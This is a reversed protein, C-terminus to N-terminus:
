RLRRLEKAAHNNERVFICRNRPAKAADTSAKTTSWQNAPIDGLIRRSQLVQAREFDIVMLQQRSEDWLMNRLELDTHLVGLDHIAKTSRDLQEAIFLKDKSTLEDLLKDLRMGGYSLFIMHELEAIGEYRYPKELDITGLCM